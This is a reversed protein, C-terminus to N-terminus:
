SRAPLPPCPHWLTIIPHLTLMLAPGIMFYNVLLRSLWDRRFSILGSYENSPSNSFRWYQLWKICLVSENSFVRIGPFISPLLLLPHCLILYNSPMVSEISMPKLLNWSIIFSLSGQCAATWSIAFIQCSKAVSGCCTNKQLWFSVINNNKISM